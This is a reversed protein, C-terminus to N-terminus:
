MAPAGAVRSALTAWPGGPDSPIGGIVPECDDALRLGDADVIEV